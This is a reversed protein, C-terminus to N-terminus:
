NDLFRNGASATAVGSRQLAGIDDYAPIGAAIAPSTSKLSFDGTAVDEYEEAVTVATIDHSYSTAALWDSAGSTAGSTNRDLRNHAAFIAIDDDAALIGYTACDTILNDVIFAAVSSGDILSIGAQGSAANALITNDVICLPGPTGGQFIGYASSYIINKSIFVDGSNVYIGIGYNAKIHNAVIRVNDVSSAQNVCVCNTGSAGSLEIDNNYIIQNTQAYADLCFAVNQGDAANVIKCRTVASDGGIHIVANAVNGTVICSEIITFKKLTLYKGAAYALTPMNTLILAGNDDVRGLFGDGPTTNYGRLIIPSTVTGNNTLTEEESGPSRSYTGKKINIRDGPAAAALAETLTWPTELSGDGGGEADATVYKETIAM